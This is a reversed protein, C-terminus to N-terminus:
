LPHRQAVAVRQLPQGEVVRAKVADDAAEDAKEAQELQAKAKDKRAKASEVQGRADTLKDKQEQAFVPGSTALVALLVLARLKSIAM